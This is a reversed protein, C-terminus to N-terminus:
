PLISPNALKELERVSEKCLQVSYNVAHFSGDGGLGCGDCRRRFNGAPLFDNCFIRSLDVSECVSQRTVPLIGFIESLFGEESDESRQVGILGASEASPQVADGGVQKKVLRAALLANAKFVEKVTAFLSYRGGSGSRLSRELFHVEIDVNLFREGIKRGFEAGSDNQTIKFSQWVVLNGPDQVNFETRNTGANM